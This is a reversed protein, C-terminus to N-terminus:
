KFNIFITNGKILREIKLKKNPEGTPTLTNCFKYIELAYRTPTFNKGSADTRPIRIQDFMVRLDTVGQIHYGKSNNGVWEEIVDSLPLADKGVETSMKIESNENFGFEVAMYKGNQIIDTFKEQIVNLFDVVIAETAKSALAGLDDTRFTPSQGIKNSLSASTSSEYATLIVKM